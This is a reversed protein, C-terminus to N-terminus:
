SGTELTDWTTTLNELRAVDKMVRQANQKNNWLDPAQSAERLEALRQQQAPLDFDCRFTESM